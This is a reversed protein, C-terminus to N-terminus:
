YSKLRTFCTLREVPLVRSMRGGLLHFAGEAGITGFPFVVTTFTGAPAGPVTIWTGYGPLDPFNMATLTGAVALGPCAISTGTGSSDSAVRSAVGDAGPAEAAAPPALTGGFDPPPPHVVPPLTAATRPTPPAATPPAIRPVCMASCPRSAVTSAAPSPSASAPSAM